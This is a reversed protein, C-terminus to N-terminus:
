VVYKQILPGYQILYLILDFTNTEMFEPSRNFESTPIALKNEVNSKYYAYLRLFISDFLKELNKNKENNEMYDITHKIILSMAKAQNRLYSDGSKFADRLTGIDYKERPKRKGTFLDYTDDIVLNANFYLPLMQIERNLFSKDTVRFVIRNLLKPKFQKLLKFLNKRKIYEEMTSASKENLLERAVQGKVFVKSRTRKTEDFISAIVEKIEDMKSNISLKLFQPDKVLVIRTEGGLDILYKEPELMILVKSINIRTILEKNMKIRKKIISEHLATVYTDHNVTLCWLLFFPTVIPKIRKKRECVIFQHLEEDDPDKGDGNSGNKEAQISEKETKGTPETPGKNEVRATEPEKFNSQPDPQREDGYQMTKPEIVNRPPDPQREDEYQMPEEESQKEDEYQMAEEFNKVGAPSEQGFMNYKEGDINSLEYDMEADLQGPNITQLINPDPYLKNLSDFLNKIGQNDFTKESSNANRSPDGVSSFSRTEVSGRNEFGYQVGAKDYNLDMADEDFEFGGNNKDVTEMDEDSSSLIEDANVDEFRRDWTEDETETDMASQSSNSTETRTVDDGMSSRTVEDGMLSRSVDDGMSSTTLSRFYRTSNQQRKLRALEAKEDAYPKGKSKSRSGSSSM